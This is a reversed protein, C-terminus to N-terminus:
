LQSYYRRSVVRRSTPTSPTWQGVRRWRRLTPCVHTFAPRGWPWCALLSVQIVKEDQM